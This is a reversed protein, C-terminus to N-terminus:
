RTMRQLEQELEEVSQDELAKQKPKEAPTGGSASIAAKAKAEKQRTFQEATRTKAAARQEEIVELRADVYAAEFVNRATLRALKLDRGYLQPRFEEEYKQLIPQMREGVSKVGKPDPEKPIMADQRRTMFATAEDEFVRLAIESRMADLDQRVESPEDERAPARRAPKEPEREDDLAEAPADDDQQTKALKQQYFGARGAERSALVRQRELEVLTKQYQLEAAELRLMIEEYKPDIEPEAKTEPEPEKKEAEAPNEPEAEKVPEEAAPKEEAKEPAPPPAATAGEGYEAEAKEPDRLLADLEDENLQDLPKEAM